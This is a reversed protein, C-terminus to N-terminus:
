AGDESESGAEVEVGTQGMSLAALENGNTVMNMILELDQPIVPQAANEAPISTSASTTTTTSILTPLTEPDELIEDDGVPQEPVTSITTKDASSATSEIRPQEVQMEGEANALEVITEQENSTVPVASAPNHAAEESM